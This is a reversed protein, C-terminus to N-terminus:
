QLLVLKKYTEASLGEVTKLTLQYLYVGKRVEYGFDDLGDWTLKQSLGSGSGSIKQRITKVRKGAVTFIHISVDLLENPKNHNFRFETQHIFPNPYNLVNELLLGQDDVVHFNLTQETSNNYTDWAKLRLTHPGIELDRLRYSIKGSTYDGLTAEYFENLIIPNNTDGDLVAMINHGISSTSTNMGNEDSLDVILNPSENTNGGDVFFDDNLYMAILPGTNDDGADNDVGGIETEIDVGGKDLIGNEAYLSIKAKGYAIKIDKPVVFDIYFAGKEVAAKGSFVKSDQLDFTMVKGAGDNDLTTKEVLKDFITVSVTGNFSELRQGLADIVDGEIRIPSLSKLTDNEILVKAEQQLGEELDKNRRLVRNVRVGTKPIKLKMAPDGLAYIFFHQKSRSPDENKTHMLAEAISYDQGTFGLLNPMLSKNLSRGYSIFIERTTSIMAAAGGYPSVIVEEGGTFKDPNDFRTFDCTITIILPLKDYNQWSKIQPIDLFREGGWGDEGGHGFYNILLSGQEVSNNLGENIGPYLDGGASKEQPFADAYLKKINFTPKNGKIQDAIFEMDEQLVAETSRDVDDALLTIENRWDGATESNYYNLIKDVVIKAEKENAVLIRGTAVDQKDTSEMGGEGADMMGYYDDTVYSYTLSFSRYPMYVPVINKGKNKSLIDKYDYTADGFLCLYKVRTGDTTATDYLHKVFDRIATIDKSGSGFENYIKDLTVVEVTLGSNAIHYDAIRQAESALNANTVILYQVDKLAHLNQNAVLPNEPITPIHFDMESVVVYEKLEGGGGKFVFDSMGPQLNQIKKPNLQDTVDWLQDIETANAVSYELVNGAEKSLFNRFGFQTGEAVLNKDAIVEIYDLRAFGAPDTTNNYQVTVTVDESSLQASNEAIKANAKVFAGASIPSFNLDFANNQNIQVTMSSSVASKAMARVRVRVEQSTDLNDFRFQYNKATSNRTFLDGFWQQGANLLNVKEEEFFEYTKSTTVAHTAMAAIPIQEQIRKGQGNDVSLFYYSLDSYINKRHSVVNADTVVWDDPGQAYFAVYDSNDFVGDEEGFVWLSNEQLGKYRFEGNVQPLMKGGNGFVRINRPDLNSTDVGLNELFRKNLRYVGSKDIAIKYWTGSSLVSAETQAREDRKSKKENELVYALDFAELIKFQGNEKIIPQLSLSMLHNSKGQSLTVHSQLTASLYEKPLEGLFSSSVFRYVQNTIQYERITSFNGVKWTEHFQPIGQENIGSGKVFPIQYVESISTKVGNSSDWTLRFTKEQRVQSWVCFSLCFFVLFSLKKAKKVNASIQIMKVIEKKM